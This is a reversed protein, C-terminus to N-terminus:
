NIWTLSGDSEVRATKAAWSTICDIVRCPHGFVNFVVFQGPRAKLTGFTYM